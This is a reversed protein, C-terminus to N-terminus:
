KSGHIAKLRKMVGDDIPGGLNLCTEVHIGEAGSIAGTQMGKMCAAEVQSKNLLRPVNPADTEEGRLKKLLPEPCMGTMNVHHQIAQADLGSIQGAHLAASAAKLIEDGSPQKPKPDGGVVTSQLRKDLSQKRLASDGALTTSDTGYGAELSKSFGMGALTARAKALSKTLSQAPEAPTTSSSVVRARQVPESRTGYRQEFSESHEVRQAKALHAHVSMRLRQFSGKHMSKSLSSGSSTPPGDQGIEEDDEDNIGGNARAESMRRLQKDEQRSDERQARKRQAPTLTMDPSARRIMAKPNAPARHDHNKDKKLLTNLADSHTQSKALIGLNSLLRQHTQTADLDQERSTLMHHM